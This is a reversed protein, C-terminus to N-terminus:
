DLLTNTQKDQLCSHRLETELAWKFAPCQPSNKYDWSQPPLSPFVGPVQQGTLRRMPSDGEWHSVVEDFLGNLEEPVVSQFEHVCVCTGQGVCICGGIFVYVWGLLIHSSGKSNSVSIDLKLNRDPGTVDEPRWSSWFCYIAEESAPCHRSLAWTDHWLFWVPVILRKDPKNQSVKEDNNELNGCNTLCHPRWAIGNEWESLHDATTNPNLQWNLVIM